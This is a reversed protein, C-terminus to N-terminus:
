LTEPPRWPTPTLTTFARESHNSTSIVRSPLFYWWRYARPSLSVSSFSRPFAFPRPVLTMKLGSGAMKVSNSYLKPVRELRSRSSAKRFLPRLIMRFSSRGLM